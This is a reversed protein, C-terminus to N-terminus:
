ITQPRSLSIEVNVFKWKTIVLCPFNYGV